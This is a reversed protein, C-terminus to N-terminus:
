EYTLPTADEEVFSFIYFVCWREPELFSYLFFLSFRPQFFFFTIDGANSQCANGEEDSSYYTLMLRPLLRSMKQPAIATPYRTGLQLISSHTQSVNQTFDFSMRFCIQAVNRCIFFKGVVLVYISTRVSFCFFINVFKGEELEEDVSHLQPIGHKSYSNLLEILQEMKSDQFQLSFNSKLKPPAYHKRIKTYQLDYGSFGKLFQVYVINKSIEMIAAFIETCSIFSLENMKLAPIVIVPKRDFPANLMLTPIVFM